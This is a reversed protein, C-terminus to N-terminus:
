QPLALAPLEYILEELAPIDRANAKVADIQKYCYAWVLSRWARFAQGEAQFRPESPEDAYTIASRIDDYGAAEAVTDMHNQIGNRLLNLIEEESMKVAQLEPRVFANIVIQKGQARGDLLGLYESDSIDIADDPIGAGNIDSSYFGGTAPSYFKSISM